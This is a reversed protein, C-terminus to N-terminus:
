GCVFVGSTGGVKQYVRLLEVVDPDERVDIRILPVSFGSSGGSFGGQGGVADKRQFLRAAKIKTAQFVPEPVAAWGWKATVQCRARRGSAFQGRPFYRSGVASITSYPWGSIGDVVGNFPEIVYDRTLTWTQDFTGNDGSDTKVVLSATDWFDDVPLVYSDGDPRFTRATAAVDAAFSRGCWSDVARSASTVASQLLAADGGDPIQLQEALEDVDVYDTM